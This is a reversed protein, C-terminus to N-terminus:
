KFRVEFLESGYFDKNWQSVIFYMVKGNEACMLEHTFGGYLGVQGAPLPYSHSLLIHEAGFEGYPTDAARYVTGVMPKYYVALWKQLYHNYVMSVNSIPLPIIYSDTEYENIARLGEVGKLWKRKGDIKCYYEYEAFKEIDNYKVRSVVLGFQRGGRRGYVYVYGDKGYVPYQQAFVPCYHADVDLDYGSPKLDTDQEALEKVIDRYKECDATWTLDYCREWTKGGDSSKIAGSYNVDWYGHEGWHRISEYFAYMIGNIEIAGQCIKTREYYEENESKHHIILGLAKGEDDLVFTDFSLGRSLNLNSCKGIVTGRWNADSPLPAAFTDGFFLWLCNDKASYVPIGLDTGDVDWKRTDVPANKGSVFKVFSVEEVTSSYSYKM